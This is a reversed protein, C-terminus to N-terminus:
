FRLLASDPFAEAEPSSPVGVFDALSRVTTQPSNVLDNINVTMIPVSSTSLVRSVALACSNIARQSEELSCKRMAAWSQISAEPDRQTVIVKINDPCLAIFEEFFFAIMCSKVGWQTGGRVADQKRRLIANRLDHRQIQTITVPADPIIDGCYKWLLGVVTGDEFFGKANWTNADGMDWGDGLKNAMRVGLTHLIGAVLSTGSRPTGIVLICNNSM